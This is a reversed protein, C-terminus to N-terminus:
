SKGKKFSFDTSLYKEFLLTNTVTMRCKNKYTQYNKGVSSLNFISWKFHLLNLFYFRLQFSINFYYIIAVWFNDAVFNWIFTKNKELITVYKLYIKDNVQNTLFTWIRNFLTLRLQWLHFLHFFFNKSKKYYANLNKKFTMANLHRFHQCVHVGYIKISVHCGTKRSFYYKNIELRFTYNKSQLGM